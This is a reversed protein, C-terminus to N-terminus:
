FNAHSRYFLLSGSLKEHIVTKDVNCTLVLEMQHGLKISRVESKFLGHKAKNLDEEGRM